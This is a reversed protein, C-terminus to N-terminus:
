EPQGFAERGFAERTFDVWARAAFSLYGERRWALALRWPIVQDTLPIARIRDPSLLRCVTGPLMAIGLGAGVM